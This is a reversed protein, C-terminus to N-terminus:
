PWSAEVCFPLASAFHRPRSTSGVRRPRQGILLQLADHSVGIKACCNQAFKEMVVRFGTLKDASRSDTSPKCSGFGSAGVEYVAVDSDTHVAPQVAGLPQCPKVHCAKPWTSRNVMDVADLSVVTPEIQPQDAGGLVVLVQNGGIGTCPRSKTTNVPASEPLGIRPSGGDAMVASLNVDSIETRCFFSMGGVQRCLSSQMTM